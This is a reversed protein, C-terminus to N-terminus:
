RIGVPGRRTGENVPPRRVLRHENAGSGVGPRVRNVAAPVGGRLDERRVRWGLPGARATAGVPPAAYPIGLVAEFGTHEEGLLQGHTTTFVTM